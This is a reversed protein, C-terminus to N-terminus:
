MHWPTTEPCRPNLAAGPDVGGRSIGQYGFIMADVAAGVRGGQGIGGPTTPVTAIEAVGPSSKLFGQDWPM